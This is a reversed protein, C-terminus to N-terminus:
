WVMSISRNWVGLFFAAATAAEAAKKQVKCENVKRVEVECSAESEFDTIQRHMESDDRRHHNTINKWFADASTQTALGAPLEQITVLTSESGSNCPFEDVIRLLRCIPRICHSYKVM